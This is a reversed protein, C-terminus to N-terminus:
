TRCRHIEGRLIRFIPSRYINIFIYNDLFDMVDLMYKIFITTPVHSTSIYFIRDEFCATQVLRHGYARLGETSFENTILHLIIGARAYLACVLAEGPTQNILYHVSLFQLNIRARSSHSDCSPLTVFRM